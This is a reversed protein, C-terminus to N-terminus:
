LKWILRKLSCGGYYKKGHNHSEMYHVNGIECRGKM